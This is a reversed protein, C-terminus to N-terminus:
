LPQLWQILTDLTEREYKSRRGNTGHGPGPLWTVSVGPNAALLKRTLEPNARPHSSDVGQIIHGRLRHTAATTVPRNPTTYTLGPYWTIFRIRPDATSALTALGGGLSNGVLVIRSPDLGLSDMLWAIGAEVDASAEGFRAPSSAPFTGASKGHGRLDIALSAIGHARLSDSLDLWERSDGGLGHVLVVAERPLGQSSVVLRAHLNSQELSSDPAPAVRLQITRTTGEVQSCALLWVLVTWRSRPNM